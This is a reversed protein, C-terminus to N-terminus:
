RPTFEITIYDPDFFIDQLIVREFIQALQPNMGLHLVLQNNDLVELMAGEPRGKIQNLATRVMMEVAMGGSYSLRVDTGLVREVTLDLSMSMTRILVKADYALTVTRSDRYSIPLQQGTKAQLLNQLEVFTIRFQM